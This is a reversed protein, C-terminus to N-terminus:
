KNSCSGFVYSSEHCYSNSNDLVTVIWTSVQLQVAGSVAHSYMKSCFNEPSVASASIDCTLKFAAFHSAFASNFRQITKVSLNHEVKRCM